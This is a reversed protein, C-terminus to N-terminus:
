PICSPFGSRTTACFENDPEAATGAEALAATAPDVEPATHLTSETVAVGFMGM